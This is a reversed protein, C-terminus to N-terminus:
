NAVGLRHRAAVRGLTSQPFHIKFQNACLHFRPSSVLDPRSGSLSLSTSWISTPPHWRLPRGPGLPAPAAQPQSLPAASPLTDLGPEFSPGAVCSAASAPRASRSALTSALGQPQLHAPCRETSAARPSRSAPRVTRRAARASGPRRQALPQVSAPSVRSRSLSSGALAAWAPRPAPRHM